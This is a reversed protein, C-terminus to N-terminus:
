NFMDKFVQDIRIELLKNDKVEDNDKVKNKEEIM